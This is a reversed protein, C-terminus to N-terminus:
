ETRPGIFPTTLLDSVFVELQAARASVDNMNPYPQAGHVLSSRLSYCDKFFKAPSMDIYKRAGLVEAALRSGAQSISEQKLWRLSGIMSRRDLEPIDATETLKILSTVHALAAHERDRLELLAEIAMMLLLFRSEATQRFFSDNFLQFAVAQRDTLTREAQIAAEFTALLKAPEYGVFASGGNSFVLLPKPETKYTMLGHVDNLLPRDSGGGLM